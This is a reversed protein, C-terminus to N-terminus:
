GKPLNLFRGIVDVAGAAPDFGQYREVLAALSRKQAARQEPQLVLEELAASIPADSGLHPIFEPVIRQQEIVNPLARYPTRILWRGLTWWPLANMRFMIVMPVNAAALDLSATGSCALAVDATALEEALTGVAYTVGDPAGDGVVSEGIARAKEDVFVVTSELQSAVRTRIDSVIRLMSALNHRIESPRSGPLVVCRTAVGRGDAGRVPQKSRRGLAEHIVPHGIFTAAVGRQEFYQEEFPLLCLVHDTRRRLKGIRWPAWAWLQPAVLHVISAGHRRTIACIPFNAAPSDVPVHLAIRHGRLWGDLRKNLAWHASIKTLAGTLMAADGTTNEILTAGAAEMRPGGLAMVSLTPYVALLRRIVPAAHADGSPEFATFLVTCKSLDNMLDIAKAPFWLSCTEIAPSGIGM